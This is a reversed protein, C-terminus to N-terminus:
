YFIDPVNLEAPADTTFQGRGGPLPRGTTTGSTGTATGPTRLQKASNPIAKLKFANAAQKFRDVPVGPTSPTSKNANANALIGALRDEEPPIGGNEYKNVKGGYAFSSIGTKGLAQAQGHQFNAEKMEEIKKNRGGFLHDKAMNVGISLSQNPNTAAKLYQNGLSSEKKYAGVDYTEQGTTNIGEGPKSGFADIMGPLEGQVKGMVAQAIMSEPGGAMYKNVKGGHGYSNMKGGYSYPSRTDYLEANGTKTARRVGKYQEPVPTLGPMGASHTPSGGRTNITAKKLKALDANQQAMAGEYGLTKALGIHADDLMQSGDLDSDIIDPQSALANEVANTPPNHLGGHAYKNMRGGRAFMQGMDPAGQQPMQEQPMQQPMQEQPMGQGPMPAQEQMMGQNQQAKVDEQVQALKETISQMTRQSVPDKRDKFRKMLIKHDEAPTKGTLFDPLNYQQRLKKDM